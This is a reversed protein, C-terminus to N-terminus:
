GQPRGRALPGHIFECDFGGPEQIVTLLVFRRAKTCRSAQQAQTRDLLSGL